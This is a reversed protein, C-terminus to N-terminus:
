TCNNGYLVFVPLFAAWGRGGPVAGNCSPSPSNNNGSPVVFPWCLFSYFSFLSRNGVGPVLGAVATATWQPNTTKLCFAIPDYFTVMGQNPELGLGLFFQEAWLPDFVSFLSTPVYLGYKSIDFM